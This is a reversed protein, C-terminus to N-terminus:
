AARKEARKEARDRSRLPTEAVAAGATAYSDLAAVFVDQTGAFYQQLTRVAEAHHESAAAMCDRMAEVAGQVSDQAFQSWEAPTQAGSAQDSMRRWQRAGQDVLLQTYELQRRVLEEAGSLALASLSGCLDLNRSFSERRVIM